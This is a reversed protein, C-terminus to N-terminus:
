TATPWRGAFAWEEVRKRDSPTERAQLRESLLSVPGAKGVAIMAQPECEGPIGLEVRAREHDFGGMAHVVLGDHTAQLAFNEWAAGTDFAHTPLVRGRDSITSSIAVLLVAARVCWERNGEVLLGLFTPFEPAERHAYLFRWPQSNSWSPAWRAAELLQLLQEHAIPEGSMARPSWRDLILPHIPREPTRM